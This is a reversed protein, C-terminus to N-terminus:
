HLGKGAGESGPWRRDAREHSDTSIPVRPRTKQPCSDRRDLGLSVPFLPSWLRPQLLTPLLCTPSLLVLIVHSHNQQYDKCLTHAKFHMEAVLLSGAMACRTKGWDRCFVSHWFSPNPFGLPFVASILGIHGNHLMDFCLSNILWRAKNFNAGDDDEHTYFFFHEFM